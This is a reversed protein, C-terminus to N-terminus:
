RAKRGNDKSRPTFNDNIGKKKFAAEIAKVSYGMNFADKSSSFM